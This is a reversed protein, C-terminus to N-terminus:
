FIVRRREGEVINLILDHVFFPLLPKLATLKTFTSIDRNSYLTTGCRKENIIINASCYVAPIIASYIEWCMNM